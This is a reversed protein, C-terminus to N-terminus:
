DGQRTQVTGEGKVSEDQTYSYMLGANESNAVTTTTMSSHAQPYFEAPAHYIQPGMPMPSVATEDGGAAAFNGPGSSFLYNGSSSDKNYAHDTVVVPLDDAMDRAKHQRYQLLRTFLWMGFVGAILGGFFGGVGANTVAPQPATPEGPIASVSSTPPQSTKTPAASSTTSTPRTLITEIRLDDESFLVPEDDCQDEKDRSICYWQDRSSTSCQSLAQSSNINDKKDKDM